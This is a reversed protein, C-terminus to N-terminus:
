AQRGWGVWGIIIQHRPAWRHACSTSAGPADVLFAAAAAALASPWPASRALPQAQGSAAAYSASTASCCRKRTSVPRELPAHHM